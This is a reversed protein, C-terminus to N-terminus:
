FFQGKFHVCSTASCTVQKYNDERKKCIYNQLQHFEKGPM